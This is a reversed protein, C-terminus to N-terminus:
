ISVIETSLKYFKRLAKGEPTASNVPFLHQWDSAYTHFSTWLALLNPDERALDVYEKPDLASIESRRDIFRILALLSQVIAKREVASPSKSKIAPWDFLDSIIELATPEAKAEDLALLREVYIRARDDPSKADLGNEIALAYCHDVIEWLHHGKFISVPKFQSKALARAYQIYLNYRQLKTLKAFGDELEFNYIRVVDEQFAPHAYELAAYLGDVYLQTAGYYIANERRSAFSMTEKISKFFDTYDNNELFHRASEKERFFREGVTSIVIDRAVFANGGAEISNQLEDRNLSYDEASILGIANQARLVIPDVALSRDLKIEYSGPATIESSFKVVSDVSSSFFEIQVKDKDGRGKEVLLAKATSDTRVEGRVFFQDASSACDL